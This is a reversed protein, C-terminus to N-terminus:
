LGFPIAPPADEETAAMLADRLARSLRRLKGNEKRLKDREDALTRNVGLTEAAHKEYERVSALQERLNALQERLQANVTEIARLEREMDNKSKMM